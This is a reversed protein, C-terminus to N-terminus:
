FDNCWEQESVIRGPAIFLSKLADSGSHNEINLPLPYKSCDTHKSDTNFEPKLGFILQAEVGTWITLALARPHLWELPICRGEDTYVTISALYLVKKMGDYKPDTFRTFVAHGASFRHNRSNTRGVYVITAAQDTSEIAFIYIPFSHIPPEGLKSIVKESEESSLSYGANKRGLLKCADNVYRKTLSWSEEFTQLPVEAARHAPCTFDISVFVETPIHVECEYYLFSKFFFNNGRVWADLPNSTDKPLPLRGM